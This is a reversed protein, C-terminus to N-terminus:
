AAARDAASSTVLDTVLGILDPASFPKALHRDTGAAKAAELHEPLANATLM